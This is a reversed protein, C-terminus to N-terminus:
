DLVIYFFRNIIFNVRFYGRKWGFRKPNTTSYSLKYSGQQLCLYQHYETDDELNNEDITIINYDYIDRIVIKMYNSFSTPFVAIHLLSYGNKECELYIYLVQHDQHYLLKLYM